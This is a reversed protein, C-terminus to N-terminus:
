PEISDSPLAISPSDERRCDAFVGDPRMLKAMHYDAHVRLFTEMFTAPEAIRLQEFRRWLADLRLVAEPHAWWRSAWNTESLREETVAYAPRIVKDVFEYVSPYKTEIPQDM